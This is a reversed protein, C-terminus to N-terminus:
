ASGMGCQVGNRFRWSCIWARKFCANPLKGRLRLQTAFSEQWKVGYGAEQETKLEQAKEQAHYTKVRFGERFLTLLEEGRDETLPECTMGSQSRSLVKTMRDQASAQKRTNSTNLQASPEGVLHIDALYEAVPEQSCPLSVSDVLAKSLIWM